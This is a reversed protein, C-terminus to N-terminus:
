FEVTRLFLAVFNHEKPSLRPLSLLLSLDCWQTVRIRAPHVIVLPLVRSHSIARSLFGSKGHVQCSSRGLTHARVFAAAVPVITARFHSVRRSIYLNAPHHHIVLLSPPLLPAAYAGCM